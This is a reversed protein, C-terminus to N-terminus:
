IYTITYVTGNVTVYITYDCEGNGYDVTINPYTTGPYSLDFKGKKIIWFHTWDCMIAFELPDTITILFPDGNIDTGSASGTIRYEDDFPNLWSNYGAFWENTRQSTYSITGYQSIVSGQVNVSYVPHLDINPGQNTIIQTGTAQYDVGNINEHYNNFTSTVVTGTQIWPGTIVSVISGSRIISDNCHCGTGFDLTVTKPWGSGAITLTPCGHIISDEVQKGHTATYSANSIQNYSRNFVGEALSNDKAGQYNNKKEDNDKKCSSLFLGGSIVTCLALFVLKTKM